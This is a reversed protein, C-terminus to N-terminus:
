CVCWNAKCRQRLPRSLRAKAVVLASLRPCRLARLPGSHHRPDGLGRPHRARVVGGLTGRAAPRRAARPRKRTPWRPTNVEPRALARTDARPPCGAAAGGAAPSPGLSRSLSRPLSRRVCRGLSSGRARLPGPGWSRATLPSDAAAPAARRPPVWGHVPEHPSHPGETDSGRPEGARGPLGLGAHPAPSPDSGAPPLPLAAAAWGRADRGAAAAGAPVVAHVPARTKDRATARQFLLKEKGKQPIPPGPTAARQAEWEYLTRSIGRRCFM